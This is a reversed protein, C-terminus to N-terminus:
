ARVEWQKGQGGWGRRMVKRWSNGRNEYLWSPATLALGLATTQSGSVMLSSAM